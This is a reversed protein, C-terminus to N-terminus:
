EGEKLGLVCYGPEIGTFMASPLRYIVERFCERGTYEGTAKDYERLKLVDGVEFNRDDKRVEFKKVGSEVDDFYRPWIKLEHMVGM